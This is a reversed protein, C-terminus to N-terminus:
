AANRDEWSLGNEECYERAADLLEALDDLTDSSINSKEM